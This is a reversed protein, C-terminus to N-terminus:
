SGIGALILSHPQNNCQKYHGAAKEPLVNFYRLHLRVQLEERGVSQGPAL